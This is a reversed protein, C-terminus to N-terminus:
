HGQFKDILDELMQGLENPEWDSDFGISPLLDACYEHIQGAEEQTFENSGRSVQQRLKEDRQLVRRLVEVDRENLSVIVKGKASESM